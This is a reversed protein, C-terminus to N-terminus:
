NGKENISLSVSNGSFVRMWEVNLGIVVSLLGLFAMSRLKFKKSKTFAKKFAQKSEDARNKYALRRGLSFYSRAVKEGWHVKLDENTLKSVEKLEDSLESYFDLVYERDKEKMDVIHLNTMQSGHFRYNALCKDIFKFKGRKALELMTPYDEALMGLPQIYGGIEKLYKTRILVSPEGIFNEKLLDQLISGINFNELNNSFQMPDSKGIIRDEEDILNMHGFSLVIEKDKMADVQIELRDEPWSDDSPVMTVFEGLAQNLGKNITKALNLVGQNEQHYYSIRPDNFESIIKPSSDTSGDDIVILEWNNYNQNVISGISRDLFKEHNFVPMILSVLPQHM